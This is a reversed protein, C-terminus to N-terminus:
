EYDYQKGKHKIKFNKKKNEIIKTVPSIAGWDGRMKRIVEYTSNTSKNKKSMQNEEKRQHDAGDELATLFGLRWDETENIKLRKGNECDHYGRWYEKSYKM